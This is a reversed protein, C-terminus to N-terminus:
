LTFVCEDFRSKTFGISSLIKSIKNYWLRGSQRCGFLAKLKVFIEGNPRIMKEHEPNSEVMYPVLRKDIRMFVEDTMEANLYAGVVDATAVQMDKELLLNCLIYLSTISMTPSSTATYSADTQRHGGAV